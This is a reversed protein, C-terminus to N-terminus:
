AGVVALAGPLCEVAVTRAESIYIDGDIEFRPAEDFTLEFRSSSVLEVRDSDVHTGKQAAGFLRARTLAPADAIFCGHLLGDNLSAGPAIPFGGGFFRGNSVTVMLHAGARCPGEASTVGVDIGSFRFLQQLATIRYLLEGRLFRASAAADIVAIDFGFGVLNLFHAFGRPPREASPARAPSALRGVDVPRAAGAALIGVAHEPNGFDLGLNRGFDNGTGSPLVGFRPTPADASLLGDAVHSWTGDGGVAVVTDYGEEAARVALVREEGPYTTVAEDHGPLRVALLRRYAEQRRLGRGRGSAPNFIVLVRGNPGESV